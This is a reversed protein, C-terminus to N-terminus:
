GLSTRNLAPQRGESVTVFAGSGDNVFAVAEGQEELITRAPCPTTMLADALGQGEARAFLWVTQYTRVAIAAGDARVDAATAVGAVGFDAIAGEPIEGEAEEALDDLAVAGAETLVTTAGDWPPDAVYISAAGAGVPADPNLRLVIAKAVIAVQGSRPDVLLAEADTAGDPYALPAVEVVEPAVTLVGGDAPLDPEPFRYLTVGSRQANNDGIDALYVFGGTLAMDEIDVGPISPVIAM